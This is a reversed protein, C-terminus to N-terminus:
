CQHPLAMREWVLEWGLDKLKPIVVPGVILMPAEGEMGIAAICERSPLVKVNVLLVEVGTNAGM